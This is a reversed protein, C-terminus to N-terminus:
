VWNMLKRLHDFIRGILRREETIIEASGRMEQKFPLDRNYTSRMGNPLKLEISYINNIPVLSISTVEGIIMGYEVDPYTDFKMRIKQGIKVKGSGMVPLEIKGVINKSDPIVSLVENGAAVFQYDTWFGSLSVQGSIPSTLLYNQEWSSLGSELKEFTEVIRTHLRSYEEKQRLAFEDAQTSLQAVVINNQIISSELTKLNRKNQLHVSKTRFMEHKTGAGGALLLSDDEYRAKSIETEEKLILLQQELGDSLETHYDIRRLLANRQNEYLSVLDFRKAEEIASMFAMYKDQIEGLDLSAPLEIKNLDITSQYINKRLEDTLEQLKLVDELHAPNEIVGLLFDKEIKQKDEVNLKIKGSARAILHVPPNETVLMVHAQIMDPYKIVWTAALMALVVFFLASIGWRIFVNPVHSLIEQVDDSRIEIDNIPKSMIM